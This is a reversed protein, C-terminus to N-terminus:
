TDSDEGKKFLEFSMVMWIDNNVNQIVEQPIPSDGYPSKLFRLLNFHSNPAYEQFITMLILM